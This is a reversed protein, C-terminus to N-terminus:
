VLRYIERQWFYILDFMVTGLSGLLYPLEKWIFDSYSLSEPPNSCFISLAYTTNALLAFTFLLPSVGEVSKRQYNHYLQPVRSSCYIITCIWPFLMYILQPDARASSATSNAVGTMYLPLATAPSASLLATTTTVVQSKSLVPKFVESLTKGRRPATYYPDTEPLVKITSGRLPIDNNSDRRKHGSYRTYYIYQFDLVIDNLVFYISLYTQFPLQDTLLCGLLNCSDGLLWLILLYPSLGHASKTNFNHILQPILAVVWCFTTLWAFFTQATIM